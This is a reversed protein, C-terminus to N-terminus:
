KEAQKLWDQLVDKANNVAKIKDDNGKTRDPHNAFALTRYQRKLEDASPLKNSPLELTQLAQKVHLPIFLQHVAHKVWAAVPDEHQEVRAMAEDYNFFERKNWELFWKKVWWAGIKGDHFTFKPRWEAFLRNDKLYGKFAYWAYQGDEGWGAAFRIFYRDEGDIHAVHTLKLKAM